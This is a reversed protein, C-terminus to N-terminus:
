SFFVVYVICTDAKGDKFTAQLNAFCGSLHLAVPKIFCFLYIFKHVTFQINEYICSHKYIYFIYHNCIEVSARSDMKDMMNNQLLLCNYHAENYSSTIIFLM